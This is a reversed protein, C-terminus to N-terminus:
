SIREQTSDNFVHVRGPAVAFRIRSGRHMGGRAHTRAVLQQANLRDDESSDRICM